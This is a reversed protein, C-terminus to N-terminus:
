AGGGGRGVGDEGAGSPRGHSPHDRERVRRADARVGQRNHDNFGAQKLTDVRDAVAIDVVELEKGLAKELLQASHRISYSPGQLDVNESRAPKNLLSNSVLRGIDKTAIM